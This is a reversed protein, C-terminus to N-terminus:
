SHRLIQEVHGELIRALELAGSDSSTHIRVARPRKEPPLAVIFRAVESFNHTPDLGIVYDLSVEEVDGESLIRVADEITRALAWGPPPTRVDDVYLKLPTQIRRRM